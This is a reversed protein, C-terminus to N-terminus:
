AWDLPTATPDQSVRAANTEATAYYKKGGFHVLDGKGYKTGSIWAGKDTGGGGDDEYETTATTGVSWVTIAVAVGVFGGGVSVAYTQVNKRSLAFVDVDKLARVTAGVGIQTQVSQDLTGIDIGAAAGVFGGGSGGG